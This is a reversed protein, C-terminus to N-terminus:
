EDIVQCTDEAKILCKFMLLSSELHSSQKSLSNIFITEDLGTTMIKPVLLIEATHHAWYSLKNIVTTM